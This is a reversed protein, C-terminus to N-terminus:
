RGLKQERQIEALPSATGIRTRLAAEAISRGDRLIPTKRPIWLRRKARLAIRHGRFPLVRDLLAGTWALPFFGGYIRMLRAFERPDLEEATWATPGRVRREASRRASYEFAEAFFGSFVRVEQVDFGDKLVEYLEAERYGPRVQGLRADTFGLLRRLPHLPSPKHFPTEIVLRGAPKLARHVQEILAVDDARRELTDVVVAADFHGEPFPLRGDEGIAGASEGYLRRLREVAAAGFDASFWAGGRRRLLAGLAGAGIELCTQGETPGLLAELAARRSRLVMSRRCWRALREDAAAPTAFRDNM